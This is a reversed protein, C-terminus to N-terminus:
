ELAFVASYELNLTKCLVMGFWVVYLRASFFERLRWPPCTGVLQRRWQNNNNGGAGCKLVNSAENGLLRGALEIKYWTIVKALLSVTSTQSRGAPRTKTIVKTKTIIRKCTALPKSIRIHYIRICELVIFLM